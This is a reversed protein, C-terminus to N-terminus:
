IRTHMGLLKLVYVSVVALVCAVPVFLWKPAKPFLKKTIMPSLAGVALLVLLLNLTFNSIIITNSYPLQIALYKVAFSYSITTLIIVVVFLILM